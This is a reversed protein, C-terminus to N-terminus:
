ECEDTDSGQKGEAHRPCSVGSPAILAISGIDVRNEIGVIGIRIGNPYAVLIIHYSGVKMEGSHLYKLRGIQDIPSKDALNVVTKIEGTPLGVLTVGAPRPCRGDAIVIALEPDKEASGVFSKEHRCGGTGVTRPTRERQDFFYCTPFVRARKPIIIPLGIQSSAFVTGTRDNNVLHRGVAGAQEVLPTRDIGTRYGFTCFYM